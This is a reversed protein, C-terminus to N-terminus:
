STLSRAIWADVLPHVDHDVDIYSAVGEDPECRTGSSVSELSQPGLPAGRSRASARLSVTHWRTLLRPTVCFFRRGSGPHQPARAVLEVRAPSTCRPFTGAKQLQRIREESIMLLRAAQGIPILGSQEAVHTEASERRSAADAPDYWRAWVKGYQARGLAPAIDWAHLNQGSIAAVSAPYVAGRKSMVARTGQIRFNGGIERALREGMHIFSEDRMEFYTRQITALAPDVEVDTIGASSGAEKLIDEVTKDDFHRQQAEKAKGSTDVGKASISLTRGRRWGSFTREVTGAVLATM